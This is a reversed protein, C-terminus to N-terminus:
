PSRDAQSARTARLILILWLLKVFGEQTSYDNGTLIETIGDQRMM